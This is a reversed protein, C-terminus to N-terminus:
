MTSYLKHRLFIWFATWSWSFLTAALLLMGRHEEIVVTRRHSINMSSVSFTVSYMLLAPLLCFMCINGPFLHKSSSSLSVRCKTFFILSSRTDFPHSVQAIFLRFWANPSSFYVVTRRHVTNMSSVSFTVSYMLLASLPPFTCTNGLFLLNEVSRICKSPMSRVKCISRTLVFVIWWGHVRGHGCFHGCCITDPAKVAGSCACPRCRQFNATWTKCHLKSFGMSLHQGHCFFTACGSMSDLVRNGSEVNFSLSLSM